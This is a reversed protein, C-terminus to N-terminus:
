KRVVNGAEDVVFTEEVIDDTPYQNQEDTSIAAATTKNKPRPKRGGTDM